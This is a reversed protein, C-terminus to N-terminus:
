LSWLFGGQLRVQCRATAIVALRLQISCGNRRCLCFVARSRISNSTSHVAPLGCVCVCPRVAFHRTVDCCAVVSGTRRRLLSSRLVLHIIFYDAFSSHHQKCNRCTALLIIPQRQCLTVTVICSCSGFRIFM